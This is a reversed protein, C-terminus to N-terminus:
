KAYENEEGKEFQFEIFDINTHNILTGHINIDVVNNEETIWASHTIYINTGKENNSYYKPWGSLRRGDKFHIVIYRKEKEFTDHWASDLSTKNTFKFYRLLWMHWDKHVVIGIITPIIIMFIIVWLTNFFATSKNEADIQVVPQWTSVLETSFYILISFILAEITAKYHDDKEKNYFLRFIISSIFGPVLLLLINITEYTLSIDCRM